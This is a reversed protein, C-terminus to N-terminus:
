LQRSYAIEVWIADRIREFAEGFVLIVALQEHARVADIVRFLNPPVDPEVRKEVGELDADTIRLRAHIVGDREGRDNLRDDDLQM